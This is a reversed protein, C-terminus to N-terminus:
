ELDKVNLWLLPRKAAWEFDDIRGRFTVDEGPQLEEAQGSSIQFKADGQLKGGSAGDLDVTLMTIEVFEDGHEKSVEVVQGSWAVHQGKIAKFWGRFATQDGAAAAERVQAFTLDSVEPEGCGALLLM